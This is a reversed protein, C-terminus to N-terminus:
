SSYFGDSFTEINSLLFKLYISHNLVLQSLIQLVLPSIQFGTIIRSKKQSVFFLFGFNLLM